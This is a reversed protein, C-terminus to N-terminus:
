RNEKTPQLFPAVEIGAKQLERRVHVAMALAGPSDGHVCISHADLPIPVGDVTPMLGSSLYGILRAAAEAPDDIMAGPLNRPVLRGTSLYGRDAFIESFVTIGADRAAHELETGSIALIALEPSVARTARIIADAVPREDAAWNALAGHPKIYRIRAGALAAAGMLTGTQTAVLQEVERISLPILRRGFGERDAFGPHAGAVVGRESALALTEVMTAPDGAHGGCAINASTVVDLIATDDGMRWPGFAEGLDSNLDIKTM